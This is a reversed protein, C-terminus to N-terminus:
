QASRDAQVQQVFEVLRRSNGGGEFAFFDDVRDRYTVDMEAAGELMRVLEDVLTEVTFAVPGFGDRDYNFYGPKYLHGRYFEDRDSQLYAVPKRLYAFDFAVSSYDTVLINGRRFLDQYDFPYSEVLIRDTGRFKSIEGSHSPHLAFAGTFGHENLAANLRPSSILQQWTQFYESGTFKENPSVRGTSVDVEGSLAKRWTPAIVLVRGPENELRDYRSMGVLAVQDSQYAYPGDLISERERVASTVFIDFNKRTWNLWASQDHLTIGHQLFVSLPPTIDRVYKQDPGFPNLMYEDAASNLVVDAQLYMSFYQSSDPKVVTGISSLEKYGLADPALALIPKIGHEPHAALYRYLAEANDGAESKHDCMIWHQEQSGKRPRMAATRQALVSLSAGSRKARRLFGAEARVTALASTLERRRLVSRGEQRFVSKGERRYHDQSGSEAFRSGRGFNLPLRFAERVESDNNMVAVVRLKENKAFPVSIEFSAGTSYKDVLLSPARVLPASLDLPYSRDGVLLEFTVRNSPNLARLAGRIRVSNRFVEFSLIDCSPLRHGVKKRSNFSYLRKGELSYVGDYYSFEESLDGQSRLALLNLKQEIPAVQHSVTEVSIKRLIGGLREKYADLQEPALVQTDGRARFVMDYACVSQVYKPVFGYMAEADAIMRGYAHDVIVDYFAEKFHSSSVQSEAGVQYRRNFYTPESVVGYAMRRMIVQTNITADETMFLAPDFRLGAVTFMEAKIFTGGGHIQPLNWEAEVNIVRSKRFRNKNNWHPGSRDGTMEIKIAVLDCEDWHMGFFSSVERLSDTSLYDDSGLFGIVQGTAAGVGTNFASAVGANEQHIVVINEPFQSAYRDCIEGSRDVSGDNVLVLQLHELGCDQALVSDIAAGLFDERNYVPIIVSIVDVPNM